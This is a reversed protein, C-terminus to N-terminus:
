EVRVPNLDHFDFSFDAFPSLAKLKLRTVRGNEVVFTVVADEGAGEPFRTRFADPGFPELASKFVPTRTFDIRLAGGSQTVMLDGYWPDRYRGAYATLPLSPGGSSASGASGATGAAAALMEAMQARVRTRTDALWDFSTDGILHDVVAHRLERLAPGAMNTFVAFALGHDPFIGTYTTQGSLGGAHHLLRRGRYDQVNWGLAYGGIV